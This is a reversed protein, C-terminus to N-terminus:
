RSDLGLRGTPAPSSGSCFKCPIRRPVTNALFTCIDVTPSDFTGVAKTKSAHQVLRPVLGVPPCWWNIDDGWDVTFADVAETEPDWFRSDFYELQRNNVNAFRDVTHPGWLLDLQHLIMPHVM